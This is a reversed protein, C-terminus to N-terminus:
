DDGALETIAVNIIEIFGRASCDMSDGHLGYDLLLLNLARRIALRTTENTSMVYVEQRADRLRPTRHKYTEEGLELYYRDRIKRLEDLMVEDQSTQSMRINPM